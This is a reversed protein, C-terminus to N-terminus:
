LSTASERELFGGNKFVQECREGVVRRLWFPSSARRKTGRKAVHRARMPKLPNRIWKGM